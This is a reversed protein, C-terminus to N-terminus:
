GSVRGDAFFRRGSSGEPGGVVYLGNWASEYIAFPALYSRLVYSCVDGIGGGGVWRDTRTPRPGFAFPVMPGSREPGFRVLGVLVAQPGLEQWEGKFVFGSVCRICVDDAAVSASLGLM